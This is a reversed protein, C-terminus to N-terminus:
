RRSQVRRSSVLAGALGFGLLLVTAPEPVGPPPPPPEEPTEFGVQASVLNVGDLGLPQGSVDLLPTPDVANPDLLFLVMGQARIFAYSILYASLDDPIQVAAGAPIVPGSDELGDGDADGGTPYTFGVSVTGLDTALDVSLNPIPNTSTNEFTFVPFGLGPDDWSFQGIVTIPAAVAPSAGTTLLGLLVLIAGALKRMVIAGGDGRLASDRVLRSVVFGGALAIPRGAGHAFTRANRCHNSSASLFDRERIVKPEQYSSNLFM